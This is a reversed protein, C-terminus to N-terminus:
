WPGLLAYAAGASSASGDNLYAGVLLDPHGDGDIDGGADLARGAYDSKAEGVLRWTADTPSLAGSLPGLLVLAMGVGSEAQDAGPAGLVLDAVGDGDLDGPSALAQGLRDGAAAGTVVAFADSTTSGTGSGAVLYVGGALAGGAGDQSAGIVLDDLGDGDLDQGGALADGVRDDAAGGALQRDADALACLGRAVSQWLYVVGRADGGAEPAGVLLDPHGDGNTDGARAVAAGAEDGAAEGLLRAAPRRGTAHPGRFLVAAGANAGGLDDGAAGVLLEPWGDLDIDGPAALAGGFAESGAGAEHIADAGSLPFRGSVPGMVVYVVGDGGLSSAAQQSAVLVDDYGDADLDPVIAVDQGAEDWRGVGVLITDPRGLTHSRTGGPLLWAAGVNQSGYNQAGILLDDVGDGDVDGGMSVSLGTYDGYSEGRLVTDADALAGCTWDVGDCDQDVGDDCQEPETSAVSPDSDDCDGGGWADSDDGDGDQDYDSAGDCDQDVGDYWIEAAARGVTPDSDDCDNGNTVYGAPVACAAFATAPDGSGDLDADLYWTLIDWADAEDVDGDCDDDTKNCVELAGPSVMPDGDDCDVRADYGDGDADVGKAGAAGRAHMAAGDVHGVREGGGCSTVLGFLCWRLAVM